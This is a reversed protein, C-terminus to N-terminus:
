LSATGLYRDLFDLVASYGRIKNGHKQFGHGEDPFVIYEVPVGNERAAAVIEDSEVQLVRPDNAGQLVMLPVRIRDAHFVPSIRHLREADVAPDGMEAYLAERISEWYPPINELTRVWNAVGFLDVGVAFAEPRLTLAALVMFGGYSGGMIGIRKADVYGTEALLRRSEVVDGLDAEGHQRDDMALFTKGYGSSGRNNIDLVVYGRNVLAQTLPSYGVIAQGGPGGHVLVIAPAPAERSAQQPRYLLGPIEVGDYSAFRVSLPRVLDERRISPHLANTLRSPASGIPGAYLESPAGGDTAFFAVAADDRSVALNSMAGPPVGDPAVPELTRADLLRQVTRADENVTVVLYKGSRSFTAASVDWPEEHLTTSVGTALDYARLAFFERGEDSLYLFQAGGPAFEASLNNVTGSHATINITTGLERDHLWLDRDDIRRTQALVVHRGDRSVAGIDFGGPNTFLLTREYGETAIRHVDFFRRDRDNMRVFFSRRDAAWGLFGAQHGTGPTLDRLTGDTERVYLHFQENGGRDSTCLIRDDNPFWDVTYIADDTSRTLSQLEGGGAPVAYANWIGSADASVLIRSGDPSWSANTFSTSRYFDAVDYRAPTFGPAPDAAEDDDGRTPQQRM